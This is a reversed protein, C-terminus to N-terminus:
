PDCMSTRRPRVAHVTAKGTQANWNHHANPRCDHNLRSTLKFIVMKNRGDGDDAPFANTMWIGYACKEDGHLPAQTFAYFDAQAHAGVAAEAHGEYDDEIPNRWTALPLEACIREGIDINRTAFCGHGKGASERVEFLVPTNPVDAVPETAAFHRQRAPLYPQVSTFFAFFFICVIVCQFAYSELLTATPM